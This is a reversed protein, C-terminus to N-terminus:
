KVILIRALSYIHMALTAPSNAFVISDFEKPLVSLAVPDIREPTYLLFAKQRANVKENVLYIALAELDKCSKHNDVDPKVKYIVIGNDGTETLTVYKRLNAFGLEVLRTEEIEFGNQPIFIPLYTPDVRYMAADLRKKMEKEAWRYAVFPSTIGFIVLCASIIGGGILISTVKNLSDIEVAQKYLEVQKEQFAVETSLMTVDQQLKVLTPDVTPTIIQANVPHIISLLTLVLILLFFFIAVLKIHKM